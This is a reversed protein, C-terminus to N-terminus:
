KSIVVSGSVPDTLGLEPSLEELTHRMKDLNAIM